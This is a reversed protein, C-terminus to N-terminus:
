MWQVCPGQGLVRRRGRAHILPLPTRGDWILYRRVGIYITTSSFYRGSLFIFSSSYRRYLPSSLTDWSGFVTSLSMYLKVSSPNMLISLPITVNVCAPCCASPFVGLSSFVLSITLFPFITRPFPDSPYIRLVFVSVRRERLVGSFSLFAIISLALCSSKSPFILYAAIIRRLTASVWSSFILTLLSMSCGSGRLSLCVICYKLFFSSSM